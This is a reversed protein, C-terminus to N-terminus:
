GMMVMAAEPRWEQRMVEEVEAMEKAVGAAVTLNFLRGQLGATAAAAAVPAEALVVVNDEIRVGGLGARILAEAADFDVFPAVRPDARARALLPPILYGGPEVTLVHGPQVAGKPVPGTESVDHVDLGLHHGIGHPMFVRDVKLDLAAELWGNGAAAGSRLLGMSRLGELLVVRAARDADQLSAGGTGPPPAAALTDLAAHQAALVTGYLDRAAGEFRGSAPFTRSIDATYCRWEAGADVLVLHGAEVRGDAAEYHMVAANPGSGVISPYGPSPAGRCRSSLSFVAELQYERLGPRCARWMDMHAGGSAVSAALLCAVEGDTKAARCRDLTAPLLDSLLRWGEPLKGALKEATTPLTHLQRTSSGQAALLSKLEDVYCVRDAGYQEQLQDLTPVAGVWYSAEEPLRPALLTYHGTEPDVLAAYGPLEVGTVYVFYSCSRHRHFVDSGNRPPAEGAELYLLGGGLFERCLKQRTERFQDAVSLMRFRQSFDSSPAAAVPTASAALTPAPAATVAVAAGGSPAAAAAAVPTLTSPGRSWQGLPQCGNRAGFARRAGLRLAQGHPLM